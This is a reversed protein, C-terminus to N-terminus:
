SVPTIVLGDLLAPRTATIRIEHRGAPQPPTTTADLDTDDIRLQVQPADGVVTIALPGPKDLLIDYSLWDGPELQVRLQDDDARVAGRTHSFDLPAGPLGTHVITVQDDPRFGPHPRAGTTRYSQGEGRFSFGTAPLRVPVRRLVANLVESRYVCQEIDFAGTLDTLIRWAEDPDPRPAKGAAYDMISEWGPPAVVSCPSTLTEIKKWPWFNWSIQEDEYLQFATQLWDTNNEGGLEM